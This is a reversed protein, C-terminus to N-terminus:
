RRHPGPHIKRQLNQKHSVLRFNTVKGDDSVDIMSFGGQRVPEDLLAVRHLLALHGGLQQVVHVQLLLAADGDLGPRDPQVVLGLVALGVGQVEDVGRAMHVEVILHGPGQGGALARHQHHVGGLAHLGLGQGVGVQGQLVVQLNQGDEVLDVQGGGVGHLGLMLHLFDDAQGGQVGRLDRGFHADVDRGDQLVYDPVDGGGGAVGVGGQLGQNEVALVVGVLADDDVEPDHLASQFLTHAHLHHGGAGGVLHQVAAIQAGQTHVGAGLQGGALHAPEGGGDLVHLVGTHAVGDGAHLGGGLLGQGAVAGGLGHDVAADVGLVAALVGVEPVGQLLELEVVGGQGELGLGGHGQAEAEAAAEQAHEVHLDDLLAQLPLEIQVEDGGEGRDYVLDGLGVARHDHHIVGVVVGVGAGDGLGLLGVGLDGDDRGGVIHAVDHGQALVAPTNKLIHLVQVGVQGLEVVGHGDALDDIVEEVGQLGPGLAVGGQIVLQVPVLGGLQHLHIHEEVAVLHVGQGEDGVLILSVGPRSPQALLQLLVDGALEELDGDLGGDAALDDGPLGDLGHALVNQGLAIAAVDGSLFLQQLFLLLALLLHAGQARDLDGGLGKHGHELQVLLSSRPWSSAWASAM